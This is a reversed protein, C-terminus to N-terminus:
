ILAGPLDNVAHLALVSTALDVSEPAFPLPQEDLITAGEPTLALRTWSEAAPELLAFSEPRSFLDLGQRFKRDFAGVREAHPGAVDAVLFDTGATRARHRAYLCRDFIQPPGNM